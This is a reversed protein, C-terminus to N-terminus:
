RTALTDNDVFLLSSRAQHSNVQVKFSRRRWGDCGWSEVFVQFKPRPLVKTFIDAENEETPVYSVVIKEDLVAEQIFHYWIDIHKTRLHYKNDKVLAIAGQNDCNIM